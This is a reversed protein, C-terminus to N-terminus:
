WPNEIQERITPRRVKGPEVPGCQVGFGPHSNKSSARDFVEHGDNGPFAPGAEYGQGGAISGLARATQPGANHQGDYGWEGDLLPLWNFRTRPGPDCPANAPEHVPRAPAEAVAQFPQLPVLPDGEPTPVDALTADIFAGMKAIWAGMQDQGPPGAETLVTM